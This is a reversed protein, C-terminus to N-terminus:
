KRWRHAKNRSPEVIDTFRDAFWLCIYYAYSDNINFTLYRTLPTRTIDTYKFRCISVFQYYKRTTEIITKKVRQVFYDRMNGIRSSILTKIAKRKQRKKDETSLRMREFAEKMISGEGEEELMAETVYKYLHFIKSSWEGQLNMAEIDDLKSSVKCSRKEELEKRKLALVAQVDQNGTLVTVKEENGDKQNPENNNIGIGFLKSTDVEGDKDGSGEGYPVSLGLIPQEL